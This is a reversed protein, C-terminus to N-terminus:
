FTHAEQVTDEFLSDGFEGVERHVNPRRPISEPQCERSASPEILRYFATSLNSDYTVKNNAM